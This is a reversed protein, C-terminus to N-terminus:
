DWWVTRTVRGNRQLIALVAASSTEFGWMRQLPDAIQTWDFRQVDYLDLVVRVLLPDQAISDPDEYEGREALDAREARRRRGSSYTSYSPNPSITLYSPPPSPCPLSPRSESEVDSLTSATSYSASSSSSPTPSPSTPMAHMAMSAAQPACLKGPIFLQSSSKSLPSANLSPSSRLRASSPSEYTFSRSRLIHPKPSPTRPTKMM